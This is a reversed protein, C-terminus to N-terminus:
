GFFYFGASIILFIEAIVACIAQIKTMRNKQKYISVSKIFFYQFSAFLIIIKTQDIVRSFGTTHV